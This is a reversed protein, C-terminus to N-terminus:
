ALRWIGIGPGAGPVVLAGNTIALDAPGYLTEPSHDVLAVPLLAGSWPGRSAVVLVREHATERLYGVADDTVVVWRLGGRRLAPYLSSGEHHAGLSTLATGATSTNGLALASMANDRGVRDVSTARM